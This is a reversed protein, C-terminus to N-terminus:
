EVKAGAFKVVKAWKVTEDAIFKGFDAPTGPIVMGGLDAIKTKITSDALAANIEVNLRTIVEGPTGQPAGIGIWQTADFGPVFEAVSPLEPLVESRTASTVALPRLTGAKIHDIVLLVTGIAGQIQGGLADTMAPPGGRYPILALKTGTMMEFLEGSVYQPSSIPPTGINVKGPNAKAYAIFEPLTKAPFAPNVLLVMPVGILGAVPAIDHQIDFHLTDFLTVDIAYTSSILLLMYGDPPARMVAEAALGGGAGARNEVIFGQGLREALWQGILRAMVDPASGATGGVMIHVPRSPYTQARAVGPLAPLSAAAAVLHLFRRRPLKM